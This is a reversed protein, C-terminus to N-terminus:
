TLSDAEILFNIHKGTKFIEILKTMGGTVQSKTVKLELDKYRLEQLRILRTEPV